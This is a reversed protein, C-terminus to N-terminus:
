TWVIAFRWFFMDRIMAFRWVFLDRDILMMIMCVLWVLFLVENLLIPLGKDRWNGAGM